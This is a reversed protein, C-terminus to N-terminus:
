KFLSLMTIYTANYMWLISLVEYWQLAKFDQMLLSGLLRVVVVAFFINTAMLAALHNPICLFAHNTNKLYAVFLISSSLLSWLHAAEHVNQYRGCV